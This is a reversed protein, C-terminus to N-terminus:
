LMSMKERLLHQAEEKGIKEYKAKKIEEIVKTKEELLKEISGPLSIVARYGEGGDVLLVEGLVKGERENLEVVGLSEGGPGEIKLLRTGMTTEGIEYLDVIMEIATAPGVVETEVRELHKEETEITPAEEGGPRRGFAEQVEKLKENMVKELLKSVEEDSVRKFFEVVLSSYDWEITKKEPHVKYKVRIRVADGKDSKLEDVILYYLLRNLEATARAAEKAMEKDNKTLDKLQAFLTRRVKQAYAGAIVLGTSM